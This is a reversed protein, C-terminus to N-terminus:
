QPGAPTLATPASPIETWSGYGLDFDPKQCDSEEMYGGYSNTAKYVSCFEINDHKAAYAAYVNEFRTVEKDTCKPVNDERITDKACQRAIRARDAAKEADSRPGYYRYFAKKVSFSDPNKMGEKLVVLYASLSLYDLATLEHPAHTATPLPKQPNCLHQNHHHGNHWYFDHDSCDEQASALGMLLFLMMAIGIAKKM